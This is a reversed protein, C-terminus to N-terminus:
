SIKAVRKPSLLCSHTLWCKQEKGKQENNDGM